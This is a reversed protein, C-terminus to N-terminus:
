RRSELSAVATQPAPPMEVKVIYKARMRRYAEQNAAVRRASQWERLVLRRVQPLQPFSGQRRERVLVLHLGYGSRIPGVWRGPPQAAVRAAFESGFINAVVPLPTTEFDNPVPLVDSDTAYDLRGDAANLHALLRAADRAIADGHRDPNLYVQSFAIQPDAGFSGRHIDLFRQLDADTPVEQDVTDQTMFQLKQAIRRRIIEDDRDLGLAVGEHYYVETKIEEEAIDTLDDPTPPRLHTKYFVEIARQMQGQSIVIQNSSPAVRDAILPWILFLAAGLVVFYLL